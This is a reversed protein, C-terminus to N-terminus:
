VGFLGREMAFLEAMEAATLARNWVRPRKLSGIFGQATASDIGVRLTAASATPNVHVGVVSTVDVGNKFIRVSAGSRTFGALAWANIVINGAPSYSSQFAPTNQVTILNLEGTPWVFWSWGSTVNIWRDLIVRNSGILTTPDIWCVGSFSEAEFDLDDSNANSCELYQAGNFVMVPLNSLAVNAWTPPGHLMMTKDLVGARAIDHVGAIHNAGTGEILPLDLLCGNLIPLNDYGKSM